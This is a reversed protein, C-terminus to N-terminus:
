ETDESCHTWTHSGWCLPILERCFCEDPSFPQWCCYPLHWNSYLIGHLCMQWNCANSRMIASTVFTTQHYIIKLVSIVNRWWNFIGMKFNCFLIWLSFDGKLCCFCGFHWHAHNSATYNKKLNFGAKAELYESNPQLSQLIFLYGFIPVVFFNCPGSRKSGTWSGM